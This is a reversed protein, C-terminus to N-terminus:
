EEEQIADAYIRSLWRNSEEFYVDRALLFELFATEREGMFYFCQGRYYHIRSRLRDNGARGLYALLEREAAAWEGRSFSGNLIDQLGQDAADGAGARDVSLIVPRVKPRISRDPMDALLASLARASEPSLEQRDPLAKAPDRLMRGSEIERDLTLLPLPARRDAVPRYFIPGPLNTLPVQVPRHLRNAEGILGEGETRRLDRDVVAYFYPVGPAPDDRYVPQEGSTEVVLRANNLDVATRIPLLSRYLEVPRKNRSSFWSLTIGSEDARASLASLETAQLGALIAADVVAPVSTVNRYPLVVRYATDGKVAFIGYYWAGATEPRDVYMEVGSRVTSVLTARTLNQDTFPEPSRYIEFVAERVDGTDKWTITVDQGAVDTAIRTVFPAYLEGRVSQATLGTVAVLLLLPLLRVKM